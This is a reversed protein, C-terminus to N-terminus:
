QLPEQGTAIMFELREVRATLARREDELAEIRRAMAEHDFGPCAHRQRIDLTANCANCTVQIPASM